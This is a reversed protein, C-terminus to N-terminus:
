LIAKDVLLGHRFCLNYLAVPKDYWEFCQDGRGDRYSQYPPKPWRALVGITTQQLVAAQYLQAYAAHSLPAAKPAKKGGGSGLGLPLGIALGVVVVAAAVLGVTRRRKVMAAQM